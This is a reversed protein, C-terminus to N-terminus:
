QLVWTMAASLITDKGALVDSLTQTVVVDPAVGTGSQWPSSAQATMVDVGYRSDSAAIIGSRWDAMLPPVEVDSGQAGYTPWPGFINLAPRGQLVHPVMDNNSYDDTNLWAIRSAAGSPGMVNPGYAFFYTTGCIFSPSSATVCTSWDLSLLWPADSDDYGARGALVLAAPSETGRLQQVTFNGLANLGGHGLRADIIIRDHPLALAASLQSKWTASTTPSFGDMEIGLVGGDLSASLVLDGGQSDQRAGPVTDSFRSQCALAPVPYNGSTLTAAALAPLDIDPRPTCQGGATCRSTSLTKAHLSVLQALERASVAWDSPPTVPLAQRYHHMVVDVWAKPDMGDIATIVDGVALGSPGAPGTAWVVYSLANGNFDNVTPGFCVNLLSSSTSTRAAFPTSVGAYPAGFHTHTDRLEELRQSLARWFTKPTADASALALTGTVWTADARPLASRDGMFMTAWVVVRTAIETQMALPPVPHWAAAADVCRGYFCEGQAGCDADQTMATCTGTKPAGPAPRIEVADILVADDPFQSKGNLRLSTSSANAVRASLVLDHIPRDLVSGDIPGTSYEVWGDTTERGTRIAPIRAWQWAKDTAFDVDNGYTVGLYPEMGDARGWMSISVRQNVLTAFLTSDFLSVGYGDNSLWKLYRQGELADNGTVLHSLLQDTSMSQFTWTNTNPLAVVFRLRSATTTPDEFDMTGLADSSFHLRGDAGLDSARALAAISLSLALALRTM